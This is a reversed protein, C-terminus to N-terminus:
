LSGRNYCDSEGEHYTPGDTRWCVQSAYFNVLIAGGSIWPYGYRHKSGNVVIMSVLAQPQIRPPTATGLPDLGRTRRPSGPSPGFPGPTGRRVGVRVGVGNHLPAAPPIYRYPSFPLLQRTTAIM